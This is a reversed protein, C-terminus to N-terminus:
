PSARNSCGLDPTEGFRRKQLVEWAFVVKKGELHALVGRGPVADELLSLFEPTGGPTWFDVNKRYTKRVGEQVCKQGNQSGM